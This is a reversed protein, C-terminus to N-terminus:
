SQRPDPRRRGLATHTGRRVSRETVEAFLGEVFKLWSGSTPIFHVHFRPHRKLRRQVKSVKHTGYNDMILHLDPGAPLNEEIENLFRLVEQHRHRLYCNGITV